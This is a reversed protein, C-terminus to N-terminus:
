MNVYAPGGGGEPTVWNINQTPDKIDCTKCHVCNSQNIQLRMKSEDGEVPVYEYVGAPCYRGEPGDYKALNHEVPVSADKLTLHCPQDEEHWTNSRSVNTLLDFSIKGDPAPYDIKTAKEKPVLSENDKHGHSLTWPTKGRFVFSELGANILGPFLGWKFGPRVNRVAHLEERLWSSDFNRQYSHPTLAAMSEPERQQLAEFTAEAAMMGSKMACHTGKIKPVNLFGASDGILAGGSFSLQPISQLGGESIARAGYSLCEGGELTERIAPHHKWRKKKKKKKKKKTLSSRLCCRPTGLPVLLATDVVLVFLMCSHAHLWCVAPTGAFHCPVVFLPLM